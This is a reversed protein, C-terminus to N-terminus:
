DPKERLQKFYPHELFPHGSPLHPSLAAANRLSLLQDERPARGLIFVCPEGARIIQPIIVGDEISYCPM